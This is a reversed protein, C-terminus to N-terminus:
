PHGNMKWGTWLAIKKPVSACVMQKLMTKTMWTYRNRKASKKWRIKKPVSKLSFKLYNQGFFAVSEIHIHGEALCNLKLCVKIDSVLFVYEMRHACLFICNLTKLFKYAQDNLRFISLIHIRFFFETDFWALRHSPVPLFAQIMMLM